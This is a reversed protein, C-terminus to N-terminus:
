NGTTPLTVAPVIKPNTKFAGSQNFFNVWMDISQGVMGALPDVIPAQDPAFQPVVQDAVGTALGLAATALQKKTAGQKAGQVIGEVGAVAAPVLTLLNVIKLWNM